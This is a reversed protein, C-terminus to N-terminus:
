HNDLDLESVSQYVTRSIDMIAENAKNTDQGTTLVCLIYSMKPHYIIGCDHLQGEGDIVAYGFKHAVRTEAPVGGTIGQTFTSQSLLELAFQSMDKSLYGTNYLV